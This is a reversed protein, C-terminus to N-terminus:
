PCGFAFTGGANLTGVFTGSARYTSGSFTNLTSAYLTESKGMIFVAPGYVNIQSILGTGSVIGRDYIFLPQAVRAVCSGVSARVNIILNSVPSSGNWGIKILENYMNITATATTINIIGTFTNPNVTLTLTTSSTQGTSNRATVTFATAAVASSV